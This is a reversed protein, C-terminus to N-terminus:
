HHQVRCDTGPEKKTKTLCDLCLGAYKDMEAIFDVLVRRHDFTCAGCNNQLGWYGFGLELELEQNRFKDVMQVVEQVNVENFDLHWLKVRHLERVYASVRICDHLGFYRRYHDVTHHLNAWKRNMSEITEGKEIEGRGILHDINGLLM